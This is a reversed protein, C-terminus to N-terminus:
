EARRDGSIIINDRPMVASPTDSHWDIFCKRVSRRQGQGYCILMRKRERAKGRLRCSRLEGVPSQVHAGVSPAPRRLWQVVLATRLHANGCRQNLPLFLPESLGLSNNLTACSLLPLGSVWINAKPYQIGYSKLSFKISKVKTSTGFIM